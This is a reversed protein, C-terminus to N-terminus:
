GDNTEDGIAQIAKLLERRSVVMTRSQDGHFTIRVDGDVASELSVSDENPYTNWSDSLPTLRIRM